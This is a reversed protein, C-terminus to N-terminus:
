VFQDGIFEPRNMCAKIKNICPKGVTGAISLFLENPELKVSLSAGLTSLRQPTTELYTDCATVDAIRVWAYEGDADFYKPDDIPRPSAGRKILSLRNIKIDRWHTPVDGLWVEDTNKYEPYVKYKKGSLATGTM